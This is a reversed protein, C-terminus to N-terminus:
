FYFLSFCCGIGVLSGACTTQALFDGNNLLLVIQLVENLWDEFNKIAGLFAFNENDWTVAAIVIVYSNFYDDLYSCGVLDPFNDYTFM